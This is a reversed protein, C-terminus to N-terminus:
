FERTSGFRLIWQNILTNATTKEDQCKVASLSIYRSCHDIIGLIYKKGHLNTKLPGCFDISIIEFPEVAESVKIIEKTKLTDTKRKQCIDCSQIVEKITLQMETMDNCAKICKSVKRIGAHCLNKHMDAIFKVRCNKPIWIKDYKTKVICGKIVDTIRFKDFYTQDEYQKKILMM